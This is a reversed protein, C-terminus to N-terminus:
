RTKNQNGIQYNGNEDVDVARKNLAGGNPIHINTLLTREYDDDVENHHHPNQKQQHRIQEVIEEDIEELRLGLRYVQLM